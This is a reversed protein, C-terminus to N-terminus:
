KKSVIHFVLILYICLNNNKTFLILYISLYIFLLKPVNIMRLLFSIHLPYKYKSVCLLQNQFYQPVQCSLIPFSVYVRKM